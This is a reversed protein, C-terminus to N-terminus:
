NQRKNKAEDKLLRRGDKDLQMIIDWMEQAIAGMPAGEASNEGMTEVGKSLKRVLKRAGKRYRVRRLNDRNLGLPEEQLSLHEMGATTGDENMPADTRGTMDHRRTGGAGENGGPGMIQKEPTGGGSGVIEANGAQTGSQAGLSGRAGDSSEVNQRKGPLLKMYDMRCEDMRKVWIEPKNKELEGPMFGLDLM